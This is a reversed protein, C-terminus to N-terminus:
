KTEDLYYSVSYRLDEDLDVINSLMWEVYKSDSMCIEEIYRSNYKGFEFKQMLVNKLSLEIMDEKNAIDLLYYYLRKILITDSLAHHAQILEKEQKYLRLEYRLFQLSYIDCEPILHKTVGLTDIINGIFNFGSLSLKELDFKINHGIITTSALNNNKLFEFAKSKVLTTKAKIMEFTIHNISSALPPIKKGENVLEYIQTLEKNELILLSISVIKDQAEIGTTETDLFILM